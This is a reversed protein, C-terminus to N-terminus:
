PTKDKDGLRALMLRAAEQEAVRKNAGVGVSADSGTISVEVAFTPAHDPGAREAERYVPLAMGRAQLWEQLATKADMPPEVLAAILDRWHREVLAFAAEFGGDLYVAALLAEGCNALLAPNNRGGAEEEGRSMRIAPALGLRDAIEALAERRVLATHRRALDGVSGGDFRDFLLRSIALGLVRDGLFELRENSRPRRGRAGAVSSHTLAEELLAASRFSYGLNEELRRLEPPRLEPSPRRDGGTM